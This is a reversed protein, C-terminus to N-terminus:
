AALFSIGSLSIPNTNAPNAIVQTGAVTISCGGNAGDSALFQSYIVSGYGPPLDFIKPQSTGMSVRQAWGTLHVRGLQDKYFQVPTSYGTQWNAQYSASQLSERSPVSYTATVFNQTVPSQILSDASEGQGYFTISDTSGLAPSPSLLKVSLEMSPALVFSDRITLYSLIDIIEPRLKKFFPIQPLGYYVSTVTDKLQLQLIRPQEGMFEPPSGSDLSISMQLDTIRIAETSSASVLPVPNSGSSLTLTNKINRFTM